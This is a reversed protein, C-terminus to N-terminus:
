AATAPEEVKKASGRTGVIDDGQLKLGYLGDVTTDVTAEPSRYARLGGKKTAKLYFPPPTVKHTFENGKADKVGSIKEITFGLQQLSNSKPGTEPM